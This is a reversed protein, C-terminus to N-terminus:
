CGNILWTLIALNSKKVQIATATDMGVMILTPSPSPVTCTHAVSDPGPTDPPEVVAAGMLIVSAM